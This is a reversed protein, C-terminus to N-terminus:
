ATILVSQYVPRFSEGTVYNVDQIAITTKKGIAFALNGIVATLRATIDSVVDPGTPSFTTMRKQLSPNFQNRSALRYVNATIITRSGGIPQTKRTTVTFAAASPTISIISSTQKEQPAGAKTPAVEGVVACIIHQRIFLNYGTLPYQQGVRNQKKFTDAIQIYGFRQADTLARWAAVANSMLLRSAVQLATNPNTPTTRAKVYAGWQNRSYTDSGVSGRAEAVISGFTISAM